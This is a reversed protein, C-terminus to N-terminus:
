KGAKPILLMGQPLPMGSELGNVRCIADPDARYTKAIDWLTDQKEIRRLVLSPMEKRETEAHAAATITEVRMTQSQRTFFDVPIRMECSSRGMNMEIPACQARASDPMFPLQVTAEMMRETSAPAGSEDLHLIKVRLNTRLVTREGENTISVAGCEVGSVCAFPNERGFELQETMERRWSQAPQDACIMECKEQLLMEGRTSYLDSIYRLERKEYVRVLVGLRATLGFGVGGEAHVLRVDSEEAWADAQYEGTEPLHSADLIQSFPLQVDCCEPAQERNRYLVSVCVEGKVILKHGMRQCGTACVSTRELLLDEPVGCGSTPLFEHHIPFTRELVDSLACLQVTEQRAQLGEDEPVGCCIHYGADRIGEVEFEIMTRVYLKRATVIRGEALLLRGCVCISRCDQLRMDETACTFPVPLVLSRLGASEESTYLVIVKVMGTITLRGGSLKKERIKLQGVADVIRNVDPCYEPIATELAEEHSFVMCQTRECCAVDQMKLELEM